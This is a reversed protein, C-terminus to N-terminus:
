AVRTSRDVIAQRQGRQRGVVGHGGQRLRLSAQFRDCLSVKIAKGMGTDRFVSNGKSWLMISCMVRLSWTRPPVRDSCWWRRKSHSRVATFQSSAREILPDEPLLSRPQSIDSPGTVGSLKCLPRPERPKNGMGGCMQVANTGSVRHLVIAHKTGSVPKFGGDGFVKSISRERQLSLKKCLVECGSVRVAKALGFDATFAANMASRRWIFRSVGEGSGLNLRGLTSSM